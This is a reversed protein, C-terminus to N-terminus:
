LLGILNNGGGLKEYSFFILRLFTLFGTWFYVPNLICDWAASGLGMSEDQVIVTVCPGTVSFAFNAGHGMIFTELVVGDGLFCFSVNFM